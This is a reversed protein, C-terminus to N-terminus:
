LGCCRMHAKNLKSPRHSMNYNFARAENSATTIKANKCAGPLVSKPDSCFKTITLTAESRQDDQIKILGWISPESRFTVRM